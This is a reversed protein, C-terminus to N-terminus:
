SSSVSLRTSTDRHDTEVTLNEDSHTTKAGFPVKESLFLAVFFALVVPVCGLLFPLGAFLKDQSLHANTPSLSFFTISVLDSTLKM